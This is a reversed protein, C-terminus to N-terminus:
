TNACSGQLLDGFCAIQSFLPNGLERVAIGVELQVGFDLDGLSERGFNASSDWM